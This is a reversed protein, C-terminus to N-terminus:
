CSYTGSYNFSGLVGKLDLLGNVPLSGGILVHNCHAPGTLSDAVGAELMAVTGSGCGAVSGTFTAKGAWRISGDARVEVIGDFSQTGTFTGTYTHTDHSAYYATGGVQKILTENFVSQTFTGAAHMLPTASATAATIAAVLIGALVGVLTLQLKRM